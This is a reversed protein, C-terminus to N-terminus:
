MAHCAFCMASRTMTMATHGPEASDAAHCTTCAVKGGVLPLAPPLESAPRLPMGDGRSREYDVEVPHDGLGRSAGPLAVAAATTGDHCSLCRVSSTSRRDATRLECPGLAVTGGHGAAPVAATVVIPIAAAALLAAATIRMDGAGPAADDRGM